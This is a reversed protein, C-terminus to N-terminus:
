IEIYEQIRKLAKLSPKHASLNIGKEKEIKDLLESAEETIEEMAYLTPEYVAEYRGPSGEIESFTLLEGLAYRDNIHELIGVGNQELYIETRKPVLTIKRGGLAELRQRIQGLVIQREKEQNEPHNEPDPFQENMNITYKGARAM